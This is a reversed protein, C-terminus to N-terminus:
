NKSASLYPKTEGAPSLAAMTISSSGSVSFCTLSVEPMMLSVHPTIIHTGAQRTTRPLMPCYMSQIDQTHDM